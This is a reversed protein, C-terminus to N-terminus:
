AAHTALWGRLLYESNAAYKLCHGQFIGFQGLWAQQQRGNAARVGFGDLRAIRNLRSAVADREQKDTM